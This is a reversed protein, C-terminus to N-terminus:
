YEEDEYFEDLAEDLDRISRGDLEDLFLRERRRKRRTKKDITKKQKKGKNLKKQNDRSKKDRPNRDKKVVIEEKEEEYM